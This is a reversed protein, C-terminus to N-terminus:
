PSSHRPLKSGSRCHLHPQPNELIMATPAIDPIGRAHWIPTARGIATSNDGWGIPSAWGVAAPFGKADPSIHNFLAPLEFCDASTTDGGSQVIEDTIAEIRSESRVLSCAPRFQPRPPTEPSSSRQKCRIAPIRVAPHRSSKTRNAPSHIMSAHRRHGFSRTTSEHPSYRTYRELGMM